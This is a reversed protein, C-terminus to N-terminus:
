CKPIQIPSSKYLLGLSRNQFHSLMSCNMGTKQRQSSQTATGIICNGSDTAKIMEYNLDTDCRTWFIM